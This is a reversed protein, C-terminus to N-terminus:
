KNDNKKFGAYSILGVIVSAILLFMLFYAISNDGTSPSSPKTPTVTTEEESSFETTQSLTQTESEKETAKTTEERSVSETKSPTTEEKSISESEAPTTEEISTSETETPTTEEISTSETESPTTEEPSSSESESPTTEEPTSSEEEKEEERFTVQHLEGNNGAINSIIQGNLNGAAQYVNANPAVIIGLMEENIAINGAFDGFNWIIYSSKPNFETPIKVNSSFAKNINIDKPASSPFIVNVIVTVGPNSNILNGFSGENNLIENYNINISIVDGKSVVGNELLSNVSQFSNTSNEFFSIDAISKIASGTKSINALTNLIMKENKKTDEESLNIASINNSYGGNIITQNGNPKTIQIKSGLFIKGNDSLQISATTNGVYSYDDPNLDKVRTIVLSTPVNVNNVIINGEIHNTRAIENAYVVCGKTTKLLNLFTHIKNIEASSLANGSSDVYKIKNNQTTGASITEASATRIVKTIATQSAIVTILLLFSLFTLLCRKKM